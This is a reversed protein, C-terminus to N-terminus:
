QLFITVALIEFQQISCQSVFPWSHIRQLGNLPMEGFSSTPISREYSQVWCSFSMLNCIQILKAVFNYNSKLQTLCIFKHLDLSSAQLLSFVGWLTTFLVRFAFHISEPWMWLIPLPEISRPVWPRSLCQMITHIFTRNSNHLGKPGFSEGMLMLVPKLSFFASQNLLIAQLQCYSLVARVACLFNQIKEPRNKFVRRKGTFPM